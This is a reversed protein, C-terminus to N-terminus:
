VNGFIRTHKGPLIKLVKIEVLRLILSDCLNSLGNLDDQGVMLGHRFQELDIVRFQVLDRLAIDM